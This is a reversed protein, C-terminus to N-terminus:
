CRRGAGSRRRAAVACACPRAAAAAASRSAARRTPPATLFDEAGGGEGVSIEAAPLPVYMAGLCKEGEVRYVVLVSARIECWGRQWLGSPRLLWLWGPPPPLGDEARVPEFGDAGCVEPHYPRGVVEDGRMWAEALKAVELGRGLLRELLGQARTPQPPQECLEGPEGPGGGGEEAESSDCADDGGEPAAYEEAHALLEAEAFRLGERLEGLEGALREASVRSAARLLSLEQSLQHPRLDPRRRLLQQLVFHLMNFGPFEGRYAKTERLRLLSQVDVGRMSHSAAQPDHSDVGFNIYNFLVVVIAIIDGFIRSSQLEACARQLKTLEVVADTVSERLTGRLEMLRLRERVRPVQALPLLRQEVDRLLSPDGKQRAFEEVPAMVEPAPWAERLRSLAEPGGAAGAAPM